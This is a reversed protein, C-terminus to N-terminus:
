DLGFGFIENKLIFLVAEELLKKSTFRPLDIRNFCTHAKIYNTKKSYYEVNVICFPSM